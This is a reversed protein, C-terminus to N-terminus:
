LWKKRKSATKKIKEHIESEVFFKREIYIERDEKNMFNKYRSNNINHCCYSYIVMSEDALILNADECYWMSM